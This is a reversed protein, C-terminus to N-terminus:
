FEGPLENSVPQASMFRSFEEEALRRSFREAVFPVCCAHRANWYAEDTCLRAVAEAMASADDAVLVAPTEDRGQAGTATAAVPVGHALAEVVKGKVGAGFRLPAVAAKVRAYLAALREDSLAGEWRVREACAETKAASFDGSGVVHLVVGPVLRELRPMVESLFWRLGDLNPGHSSGVFVIGASEAFSAHEPVAAPDYMYPVIARVNSGPALARFYAAEEESPYWAATVSSVAAVEREKVALIEAEDPSGTLRREREMRLHHADHGYYFVGVGRAMLSKTLFQAIVNPRSFFAYNLFPGHDVLARADDRCLVEVGMDGLLSHYPEQRESAFLACFKVCLGMALFTKMFEFVTRAGAHRDFEPYFDDVVLITRPRMKGSFPMKEPAYVTRSAFFSAWKERLLRNNREMLVGNRKEYSLSGFHVIVSRPQVYVGFGRRAVEFCYDPDDCYAPSFREDFGGTERFLDTRTMLSCGSVYDARKFWAYMGHEPDPVIWTKFEDAFTYVGCEQLTGDPHVVRSGIVGADPHREFAEVLSSLWGERVVVDNNLFYLYRGRALRAADNVNRIYGRNVASRVITVNRAYEALRRTDDTSADDAVIVECPVDDLHELVSTLCKKTYEVQNFVPIIISVLPQEAVPFVVGEERAPTAALMEACFPAPGTRRRLLRLGFVYYTKQSGRRTWMFTNVDFVRVKCRDPSKERRVVTHGFLRYKKVRVLDREFREVSFAKQLFPCRRGGHAGGAHLLRLGFLYYTREGGRMTRMFTNVDFVRVKYKDPSKERRVVTHGFFRCKKVQTTGSMTKETSFMKM